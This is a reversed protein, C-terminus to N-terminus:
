ALIQSALVDALAELSARQGDALASRISVPQELVTMNKMSELMTRMHKASVPAWTGNELLAATRNQLGLAKLDALYGEMRPHLGGNYTPAALVLHSCRFSEAVLESVDTGSVDYMAINHVGREALLGALVQAANETNGYMTAYAIMVGQEEPEYTSWKQYKELLVPLNGRWVPGHLPCIMEIDLAAAKKLLAQVQAGYKGVINSYYRRTDAMWMSDLQLEDDFLNGALAGFTGFADASFLIKDPEDYTVMVEPWHVMPAMMFHLTHRGTSLKDGEAVVLARDKVDLAYFQSLMGVARASCVIKAQPYRRLMEDILSCHDPEMHQVVLYDLERGGLAYLVNETFQRGISDDVTDFLVTKEDLLVYSNYSVGRPIPFLNEFRSLRRDSGGVYILDDKVKRTSHM